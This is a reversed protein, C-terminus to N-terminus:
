KNIYEGIGVFSKVETVKDKPTLIGLVNTGETVAIYKIKSKRRRM